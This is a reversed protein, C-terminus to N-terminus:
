NSFNNKIDTGVKLLVVAKTHVKEAEVGEPDDIEDWMRCVQSMIQGSKLAQEAEKGEFFIEWEGKVVRTDVEIDRGPIKKAFIKSM